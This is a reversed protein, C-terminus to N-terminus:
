RPGGPLAPEPWDPDGEPADPLPFSDIVTSAEAVSLDNISGVSRGVIGAVRQLREDRDVLGAARLTAQLRARQAPTIDGPPYPGRNSSDSTADDPRPPAAELAPAEPEPARQATRRIAARGKSIEDRIAAKALQPDLTDDTLEEVAYPMGILVDAAILRCLEATARAVLMASPHLQWNRKGALNAKKARDITWVSKQTTASAARRGCVVARTETSEEVWVEHGHAQVLGRMALARMAPTGDIVDISRLSAMPDLGLERGALIAGTVEDPRGQMTKPVFSTAALAVAIQHIERAAMAWTTLASASRVEPATM